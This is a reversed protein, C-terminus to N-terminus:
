KGLWRERQQEIETARDPDTQGRWANEVRRRYDEYSRERLAAANAAPEASLHHGLLQTGADPEGADRHSPSRWADQLRRCYSDYAARRAAAADVRLSTDPAREPRDRKERSSSNTPPEVYGTGGCEDCRGTPSDGDPDVGTGHCEPCTFQPPSADRGPSRWADGIEKIWAARVAARRMTREDDLEAYHPQHARADVLYLPVRVGGGDPVVDDADTKIRKTM